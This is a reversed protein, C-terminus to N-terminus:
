LQITHQEVWERPLATPYEGFYPMLVGRRHELVQENPFEAALSAAKTGDLEKYQAWRGYIFEQPRVYGYHHYTIPSVFLRRPQAVVSQPNGIADACTGHHMIREHVRDVWHTEPTRRFINIRSETKEVANAGLCFHLFRTAIDDYVGSELIPRLDLLDQTFWVEDSDPWFVYCDQPSNQLMLNRAAAFGEREIIGPDYGRGDVKGQLDLGGLCRSVAGSDSSTDLLVIQDVAPLLSEIAARFLVEDDPCGIKVLMNVCLIM